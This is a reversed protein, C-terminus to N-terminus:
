VETLKMLVLWCLAYEQDNALMPIFSMKLRINKIAKDQNEVIETIEELVLLKMVAHEQVHM